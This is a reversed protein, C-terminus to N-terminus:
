GQCFSTTDQWSVTSPLESRAEFTLFNPPCMTAGAKRNSVTILFFHFVGLAASCIAHPLVEPLEALVPFAFLFRPRYFNRTTTSVHFTLKM